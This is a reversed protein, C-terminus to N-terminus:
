ASHRPAMKKTPLVSTGANLHSMQLWLFATFIKLGKKKEKKM